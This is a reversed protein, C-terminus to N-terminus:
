ELGRSLMARARRIYDNQDARCIWAGCSSCYFCEKLRTDGDLRRCVECVTWQWDM